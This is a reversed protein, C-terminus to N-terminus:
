TIAKSVDGAPLRKSGERSLLELKSFIAEPLQMNIFLQYYFQQFTHPLTTFFTLHSHTSSVSSIDSLAGRIRQKSWDKYIHSGLGSHPDSDASLYLCPMLNLYRQASLTEQYCHINKLSHTSSIHAFTYLLQNADELIQKVTM